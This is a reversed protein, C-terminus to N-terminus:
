RNSRRCAREVDDIGAAPEDLEGDGLRGDDLADALDHVLRDLDDFPADVLEAQDLRRDLALAGVADQHLHRTEAIRLLEDVEDALGGLQGEPQDVHRHRRLLRQFGPRRRFRLDDVAGLRFAPLRIKELLADDDGALLQGIRLRAEVLAGALRDDGEAEVGGPARLNASTVCSFMPRGNAM